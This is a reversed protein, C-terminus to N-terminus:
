RLFTFLFGRAPNPLIGGMLWLWAFFGYFLATLALCARRWLPPRLAPPLRTTNLRLVHLAAIVTAVAAINAGLQLLVIPESLGLAVIGWFVVVALVTYYVARVDGGRWKRVRRSGAWALDTVARVSGDLIDLQTKFLVWAGILAVLYTLAINGRLAISDSLQAAIGLGRIDVGPTVFTVYLMALLAMALLAGPAFVLWQDVGAVTMWGRWRRMNEASAPFAFGVHAISRRRGGVAGPIYGAYRSMGFGRDRTWSSLMLNVVGGAGSYAAFAGILFWDAGRPLWQFSRTAPDYGAFGAATSLWVPGPVFVLCLLFLGGFIFVILIWNFAELTREIHRGFSLIAVCALLMGAGILQVATANEPGALRGVFLYFVAGAAAGAWGPWGVQLFYLLVYGAAWFRAGPRTRMFGTFVPEGTAMTYRMLELNLVTQLFVAVLAVWLLTPGYRVFVAPGLLWEGSGVSVGLLIVGPGIVSLASFGRAAPPAPLDALSWDAPGFADPGALDPDIEAPQAAM